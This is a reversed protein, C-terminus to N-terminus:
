SAPRHINCREDTEQREEHEDLFADVVAHVIHDPPQGPTCVRELRAMTEFDFRVYHGRRDKYMPPGRWRDLRAQHYYMNAYPVSSSRSRCNERPKAGCFDCAVDKPTKTM